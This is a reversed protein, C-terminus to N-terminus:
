PLTFSPGLFVSDQELSLISMFCLATYNELFVTLTLAVASIISSIYMLYKYTMFSNLLPLLIRISTLGTGGFTGLISAEQISMGNSFGFAVIYILWGSYTYGWVFGPVVIQTIFPVSTLLSSRFLSLMTHSLESLYGTRREPSSLNTTAPLLSQKEASKQKQDFRQDLVAVFPIM